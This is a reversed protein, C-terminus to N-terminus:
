RGARHQRVVLEVEAPRGGVPEAEADFNRGVQDMPSRDARVDHGVARQVKDIWVRRRHVRTEVAGLRFWTQRRVFLESRCGRWRANTGGTEVADLATFKRKTTASSEPVVVAM